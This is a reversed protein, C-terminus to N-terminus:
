LGCFCTDLYGQWVKYHYTAASVSHHYTCRFVPEIGNQSLRAAFGIAIDYHFHRYSAPGSRVLTFVPSL